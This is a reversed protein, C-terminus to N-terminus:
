RGLFDHFNSEDIKDGKYIRKAVQSQFDKMDKGTDKVKMDLKKGTDRIKKATDVEKQYKSVHAGYDSFNKAAREADGGTAAHTVWAKAGETINSFSQTLTDGPTFALNKKGSLFTDASRMKKADEVAKSANQTNFKSFLSETMKNAEGLRKQKGVARGTLAGLGAGITAKAMSTGVGDADNRSGAYAGVGGAVGGMRRWSSVNTLANAQKESLAENIESLLDSAEKGLQNRIEKQMKPLGTPNAAVVKKTGKVPAALKADIM